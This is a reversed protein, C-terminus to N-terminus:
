TLGGRQPLLESNSTLKGAFFGFKEVEMKEEWPVEDFLWPSSFADKKKNRVERLTSCFPFSSM